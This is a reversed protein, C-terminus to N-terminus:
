TKSGIGQILTTTKDDDNARKGQMGVGWFIFFAVLWFHSSALGSM